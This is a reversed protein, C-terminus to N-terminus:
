NKMSMYMEIMISVKLRASKNAEAILEIKEFDFLRTTKSNITISLPEVSVGFIPKYCKHSFANLNRKNKRHM